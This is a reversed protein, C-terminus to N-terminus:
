FGSASLTNPARTNVMRYIIDSWARFLDRPQTIEYEFGQSRKVARGLQDRWPNSMPDANHGLYFIPRDLEKLADVLERFQTREPDPKTGVLILADADSNSAQKRIINALLHASGEKIALHKVDVTGLKLLKIADGVLPLDIRSATKQQYLIKGSSLSCAVLSYTGIRPDVAIRRLIAVVGRIDSPDLAVKQPNHPAFNVVIDVKLM